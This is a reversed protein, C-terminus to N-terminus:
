NAPLNALVPDEMITGLFTATGLLYNRRSLYANIQADYLGIRAESVAAESAVGRSFEETKARLNGEGSILLRDNISMHRAAFEAAKVQAQADQGLRETLQRYDSEYIRLRALSTRKAAQTSYGDFISWNVSLGVYTSTVRYKAGIGFYNDDETQYMGATLGLKPWLRSRQIRYSLKEIEINNRMVMAETSAPDKQSLFDALHQNLSGANYPAVPMDDPISAETFESGLGALRAFSRVANQLDFAAQEAAIQARELNIRVSFIEAESIIKKALRDEAQKASATVTELNFAARAASKKMVILYMYDARLQYALARYGERYQGKAILEQIEGIKATSELSRWHFIPQSLNIGFPTKNVSYTNSTNSGPTDYLYSNKDRAKQYNAYASVNPLMSSRASIRGAEAIELNLAQSLMRASQQVANKLIGDLQPFLQEPLVAEAAPASLVMLAFLPLAALFRPTKM